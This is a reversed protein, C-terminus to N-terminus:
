IIDLDVNASRSAYIIAYKLAVRGEKLIFIFSEQHGSSLEENAVRPVFNFVPHDHQIM